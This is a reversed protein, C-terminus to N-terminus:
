KIEGNLIAKAKAVAETENEPMTDLYALFKVPSKAHIFLAKL